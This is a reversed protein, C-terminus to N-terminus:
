RRREDYSGNEGSGETIKQINEKRGKLINLLNILCFSLVSSQLSKVQTSKSQSENSREFDKARTKRCGLVIVQKCIGESTIVFYGVEKEKYKDLRFRLLKVERMLSRMAKQRKKEEDDEDGGDDESDTFTPEPSSEKEQHESPRRSQM